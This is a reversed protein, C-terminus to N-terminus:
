FLWISRDHHLGNLIVFPFKGVFCNIRAIRNIGIEGVDIKM